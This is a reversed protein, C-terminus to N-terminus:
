NWGDASLTFDSPDTIGDTVDKVYQKFDDMSVPEGFAEVSAVNLQNAIETLIADRIEPTVEEGITAQVESVATHYATVAVSRAARFGPNDWVTKLNDWNKHQMLSQFQGKLNKLELWDKIDRPGTYHDLLGGRRILIDISGDANKM